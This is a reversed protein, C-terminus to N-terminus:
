KDIKRGFDRFYGAAKMLRSGYWSFYTGDVRYIEKGHYTRKFFEVDEITFHYPESTLLIIKGRIGIILDPKLRNIREIHFEKTGGVHPKAEIIGKPYICYSTIGVIERDLELDFLLETISPVLSVIRRPRTKLTIANGMQDSYKM